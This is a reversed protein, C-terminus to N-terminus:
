RDREGELPINASMTFSCGEGATNPIEGAETITVSGSTALGYRDSAAVLLSVSQGDIAITGTGWLAPDISLFFGWTSRDTAELDFNPYEEFPSYCGWAANSSTVADGDLTASMDFGTGPPDEDNAPPTAELPAYTGSASILVGSIPVGSKEEPGCAALVVALAPIVTVALPISVSRVVKGM